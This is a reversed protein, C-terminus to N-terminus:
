LPAPRMFIFGIDTLMQVISIRFDFEAYKPEAIVILDEGTVGRILPRACVTYTACVHNRVEGDADRFPGAAPKTSVSIAM